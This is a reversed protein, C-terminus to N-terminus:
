MIVLECDPERFCVEGKVESARRVNFMFGHPFNQWCDHHSLAWHRWTAGDHAISTNTTLTSSTIFLDSQSQFVGLWRLIQGRFTLVPIVCGVTFHSTRYWCQLVSIILSFYKLLQLHKHSTYLWVRIMKKISQYQKYLTLTYHFVVWNVWFEPNNNGIYHARPSSYDWCRVYESISNSVPFRALSCLINM